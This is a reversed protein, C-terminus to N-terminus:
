LALFKAVTSRSCGISDALDEQTKGWRHFAKKARELGEESAKYSRGM